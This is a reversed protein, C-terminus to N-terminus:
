PSTVHLETEQLLTPANRVLLLQGWFFATESVYAGAASQEVKAELTTSNTNNWNTSYARTIITSTSITAAWTLTAILFGTLTVIFTVWTARNSFGKERLSTTLQMYSYYQHVFLLIRTSLWFLVIFM